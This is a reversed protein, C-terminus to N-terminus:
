RYRCIETETASLDHLRGTRREIQIQYKTYRYIKRGTGIILKDDIDVFKQRQPQYIM